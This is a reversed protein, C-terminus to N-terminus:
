RIAVELMAHVSRGPLPMGVTDVERVDFVNRLALRLFLVDHFGGMRAEVDFVTQEPIVILGASDAYRSARHTVRAGIAASSVRLSPFGGRASVEAYDSVVLRSRYPLLDNRLTRDPTTDRPDMATMFLENKVWDFARLVLAIEAGLVRARGVNYPVVVGLVNQRYAVLDEAHRAFGFADVAGRLWGAGFRVTAGVDANEGTEPSLRPNGHVVASVGYLEGLTPVRTYRGVNARLEVNDGFAHLVGLRAAPELTACTASSQGEGTTTECELAGMGLVDTQTTAHLTATAAPRLSVRHATQREAGSREIAVREFATNVSAEVSAWSTAEGQIRVGTEARGGRTTTFRSPGSRLLPDDLMSASSLGSQTLELTCDEAGSQDHGCPLHASMAGLLRTTETRARDNPLLALGPTGQERDYAHLLALLRAGGGFRYRALTWADTADYDANTRRLTTDGIRGYPYDNAASEHRLAVLAAADPSAAAGEVQGIEEGFSGAGVAAGLESRSPIRPEFFIAGGIGLRDAALPANGRYVEVRDIFALPITSLDATGTVDDNLRVGALYVPTEASTGGRIAATSLDSPSGTRAVQVGPVRALVEATSQGASKLDEGSVVSSAAMTDRPARGTQHARVQVEPEEPETPTEARLARTMLALSLLAGM